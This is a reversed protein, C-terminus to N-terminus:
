RRHPALLAPPLLAVDSLKPLNCWLIFGQTGIRPFTGSPLATVSNLKPAEPSHLYRYLPSSPHHIAEMPGFLVIPVDRGVRRVIHALFPQVQRWPPNCLVLDCAIPKKYNFFNRGNKKKFSIITARQFPQTLNGGGACPDLIVRPRIGAATIREYLWCCLPSPSQADDLASSATGNWKGRLLRDADEISLARGHAHGNQEAEILRPDDKHKAIHMYRQAAREDCCNDEVWPLWDLKQAKVLKKAEILLLGVKVAFPKGREWADRLVQLHDEIGAKIERAIAALRQRRHRPDDPLIIEVKAIATNKM